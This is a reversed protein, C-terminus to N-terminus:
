DDSRRDRVEQREDSVKVPIKQPEPCGALIWDLLSKLDEIFEKIM